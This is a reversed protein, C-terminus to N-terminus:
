LHESFSQDNAVEPMFGVSTSHPCKKTFAKAVCCTAESTINKPVLMTKKSRAPTPYARSFCCGMCQYIPADPKSFYKNEKLKCEPCSPLMSCRLLLLNKLFSKQLLFLIASSYSPSVVREGGFEDFSCEFASYLGCFLKQISASSM